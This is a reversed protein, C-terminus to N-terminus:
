GRKKRTLFLVVLFVVLGTAAMALKEFLAGRGFDQAVKAVAPDDPNAARVADAWQSVTRETWERTSPTQDAAYAYLYLIQHNILVLAGSSTVTGSDADAGEASVSVDSGLTFFLGWPERRFTGLYRIEGFSVEADSGTVQKLQANGKEALAKATSDANGLVKQLEREMGDRAQAFGTAAIPKGDMARAVQLQLYRIMEPARKEGFAAKDEPTLYVEVLRNQAPLYAQLVQLFQPDAQAAGSFGQPEPIELTRNGFAVPEAMAAGALLGFFAGLALLRM